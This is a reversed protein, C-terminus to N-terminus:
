DPIQIESLYESDPCVSAVRFNEVSYRVGLYRERKLDLIFVFTFIICLQERKLPLWKTIIKELFLLFVDSSQLITM